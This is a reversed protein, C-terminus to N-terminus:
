GTGARVAVLFGAGNGAAGMAAALARSEEATVALVLHGSTGASSALGGSHPLDTALVRAAAALPAGSGAALVSVTDSPRLSGLLTPDSLPLSVAVSGPPLGALQGAGRFRAATVIEGALVPGSLVQGVAATTDQFAGAPRQETPRRELRLDDVTLTSGLPLDHAMVVTSTGPDAARPLVASLTLWAAVAVLGVAVM